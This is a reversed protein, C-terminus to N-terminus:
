ISRGKGKPQIRREEKRETSYRNSGSYTDGSKFLFHSLTPLKNGLNEERRRGFTLGGGLSVRFDDGIIEELLM